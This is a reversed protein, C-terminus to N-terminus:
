FARKGLLPHTVPKLTLQDILHGAEELTVDERSGDREFVCLPHSAGVEGGPLYVYEKTDADGFIIGALLHKKGIQSM